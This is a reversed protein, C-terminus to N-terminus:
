EVERDQIDNDTIVSLHFNMKKLEKLIDKLLGESNNDSVILKTLNGETSASTDGMVDTITIPFPNAVSVTDSGSGLLLSGDDSLKMFKAIDSGTVGMILTGYPALKTTGYVDVSEGERTSPM